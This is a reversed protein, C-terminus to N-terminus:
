ASSPTARPSATTGTRTLGEIAKLVDDIRKNTNDISLRNLGNSKDVASLTKRDEKQLKELEEVKKRLEM